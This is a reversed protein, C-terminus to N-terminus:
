PELDDDGRTRSTPTAVPERKTRVVPTSPLELPLVAPAEHPEPIPDPKADAVLAVSMKEVPKAIASKQVSSPVNAATQPHPHRNASLVAVAIVGVVGVFLGLKADNPM